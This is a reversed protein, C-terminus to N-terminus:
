LEESTAYEIVNDLVMLSFIENDLSENRRSSQAWSDDSTFQIDSPERRDVELLNFVIKFLCTVLLNVGFCLGDM